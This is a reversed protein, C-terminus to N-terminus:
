AVPGAACPLAAIRSAVMAWADISDRLGAHTRALPAGSAGIHLVRFGQVALALAAIPVGAGHAEEPQLSRELLQALPGGYPGCHEARADEPRLNLLAAAAPNLATVLDRAEVDCCLPSLLHLSRVPVGSAGIRGALAALPLVGAGYASLHLAMPRGTAARTRLVGLLVELAARAHRAADDMALAQARLDLWLPRLYRRAASELMLDAVAGPGGTRMEVGPAMGALLSTVAEAFGESWFIIIPYIGRAKLRPVLWAARGAMDTLPELADEFHLLLHPHANAREPNALWEATRRLSPEQSPYPGTEIRHGREFHVYHGNIEIRPTTSHPPRPAAAVYGGVLRFADPARAALRLVWGDLVHRAWDAYCWLALGPLPSANDSARFGGWGPGESNLVLFGEETWGVVAFAHAGRPTPEEPLTIRGGARDVARRGWGEHVVASALVAGTEALAAHWHDAIHRLRRYSGLGIGRAAKAMEVTLEWPQPDDPDYGAGESSEPCAGNHFLGKLAGRLSSGDLGDIRMEDHARAMEYLMRASVPPRTGGAARAHLVDVVAALAQGTCSGLAGQNRVAPLDGAAPVHRDSIHGLGPEYPLDRFDPPDPRVNLVQPLENAHAADAGRGVAAGIAERIPDPLGPYVAAAIRRDWEGSM